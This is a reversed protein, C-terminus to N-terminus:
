GQDSICIKRFVSRDGHAVYDETIFTERGKVLGEEERERM